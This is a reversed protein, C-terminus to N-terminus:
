VYLILVMMGNSEKLLYKKEVLVLSLNLREELINKLYRKWVVKLKWLM